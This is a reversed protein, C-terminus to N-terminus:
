VSNRNAASRLPGSTGEPGPDIVSASKADGNLTFIRKSAPDFVIADADDAAPIHGLVQLTKLDFMAVSAGSGETAFGRNHDYSFAVGHAGKLGSIEGVLKGMADVVM